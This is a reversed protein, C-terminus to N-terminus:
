RTINAAQDSSKEERNRRSFSNRYINQPITHRKLSKFVLMLIKFDIRQQIPLWHLEKLFDTTSNRTKKKNLIM